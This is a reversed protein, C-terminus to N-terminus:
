ASNRRKRNFIFWALVVLALFTSERIFRSITPDSVHSDVFFIIPFSAGVALVGALILRVTDWRSLKASRPHASNILISLYHDETSLRLVAENWDDARDSGPQDHIRQVIQGIKQEYEDQDYNEDFAQNVAMMDPLTWCTESFYLMKREIDSLPVGDHDAQALIRHILYEKAERVTGFQNM